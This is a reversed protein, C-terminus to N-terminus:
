SRRGPREGSEPAPALSAYVAQAIKRGMEAPGTGPAIAISPAALRPVAGGAALEPALGGEALASLERELAAVLAPRGHATVPLGDLILRGIHLNISM